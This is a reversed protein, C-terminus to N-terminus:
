QRRVNGGRTLVKDQIASLIIILEQETIQMDEEDILNMEINNVIREAENFLEKSPLESIEEILYAFEPKKLLEEVYEAEAKLFTDRLHEAKPDVNDRNAPRVIEKIKEM